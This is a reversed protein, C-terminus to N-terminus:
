TNRLTWLKEVEHAFNIISVNQDVNKGNVFMMESSNFGDSWSFQYVKKNARVSGDYKISIDEFTKKLQRHAFGIKATNISTDILGLRSAALHEYVAAPNIGETFNELICGRSEVSNDDIDFYPLNRKHFDFNSPPLDIKHFTQALALLMQQVNTSSGKAGSDLMSINPNDIRMYKRQMILRSCASNFSNLILIMCKKNYAVIEPDKENRDIKLSNIQVEHKHKYKLMEEKVPIINLYLTDSIGTTEKYWSILKYNNKRYLPHNVDELVSLPIEGSIIIGNEINIDKDEYNFGEEFLASFLFKITGIEINKENCREFLTNSYEFENIIKEWDKVYKINLPICDDYSITLGYIEIFWDTIYQAETYFRSAAHKGYDKWIVQIIGGASCGVHKKTLVGSIFIGNKILVGNNYYFDEPLCVSFLTTTSRPNINHLKCRHKITNLRTNDVLKETAEKWEIETLIYPFKTMLYASTCNNYVLGANPANKPASMICNENNMLFQVEARAELKQPAHLNLEDGDFDANYSTTCASPIKITNTNNFVVRHGMFGDKHLTPQRNMIVYDGDKGEIELMDGIGPIGSVNRTNSVSIINNTNKKTIKLVKGSNYMAILDNKNYTNVVIQKSLIRRTKEPCSITNFPLYYSSGAVGRASFLSRKGMGNGRVHGGKGSVRERYSVILSTGIIYKLKTNDFMALLALYITTMCSVADPSDYIDFKKKIQMIKLIENNKTIIQNYCLTLHDHNTVGDRVIKPRTYPPTVLLNELILNSPHSESGEFGLLKLDNQPIMNFIAIIQKNKMILPTSSKTSSTTDKLTYSLRWNTKLASLKFNKDPPRCDNQSNKIFKELSKLCRNCNHEGKNAEIHKIYLINKGCTCFINKNNHSRICTINKQKTVFDAIARIRDFDKFLDFGEREIIEKSILLHGCSHCICQLIYIVYKSVLPHILPEAFNILGFHGPCGGKTTKGCTDCLEGYAAGMKKSYLSLSGDYTDNTINCVKIFEKYKTSMFFMRTGTLVSEDLSLEINM